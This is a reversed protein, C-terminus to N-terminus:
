VLQDSPYSRYLWAPRRGENIVNKKISKSFIYQGLDFKRFDLLGGFKSLDFYNGSGNAHVDATFNWVPEFGEFRLLKDLEHLNYERNHRGYPGYGSYPDYINVGALMRAVNELRSVNPTTLVLVGEPKLVRFIERLVGCPDNQMHELIEAFIVVEFQEDEFPFRDNEVNFHHYSYPESSRVGDLDTFDVQQEYVGNKELSFYNAFTVELNTFKRLLASTFYPNAGLELCRGNLDQVMGWTYAFRRFDTEAYARMEAEPAGRVRVSTIFEYLMKESVGDPLPLKPSLPFRDVSSVIPIRKAARLIKELM